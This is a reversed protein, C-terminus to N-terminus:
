FLLLLLSLLPLLPALSRLLLRPWPVFLLAAATEVPLQPSPLTLVLATVAPAALLATVALLDLLSLPVVLRLLLSPFELLLLFLVPPVSSQPSQPSMQVQLHDAFPDTPWRTCAPSSTGAARQPSV